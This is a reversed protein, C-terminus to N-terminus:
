RCHVVDAVPLWAVVGLVLIRIVLFLHRAAIFEGIHVLAAIDKVPFGNVYKRFKNIFAFFFIHIYRVNCRIDVEHQKNRILYALVAKNQEGCM